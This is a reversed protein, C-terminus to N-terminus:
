EWIVRSRDLPIRKPTGPQGVIKYFDQAPRDVLRTIAANVRSIQVTIDGEFVNIIRRIRQEILSADDSRSVRRYYGALEEQYDSIDKLPIGEPHKLFLLLVAKSLPRLQLEEPGIYVRLTPSVRVEPGEPLAAPAIQRKRLEESALRVFAALEQAQYEEWALGYPQVPEEVQAEGAVESLYYLALWGCNEMM